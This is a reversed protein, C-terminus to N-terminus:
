FQCRLTPSCYVEYFTRCEGNTGGIIMFIVSAMSEVYALALSVNM